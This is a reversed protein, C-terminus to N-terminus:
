KNATKGYETPLCGVYKKFSTAFYSPSSFGVMSSIQTISYKQELILRCAKNFRIKRIFQAVSEGTISNIKLYLNSRSMCMAEAFDNSSFSENDINKEVVEIARKLFEGDISNSTIKDPEIEVHASYHRRLRDRTKLINKVKAQLLGVSFPQALYADAGAKINKKEEEASDKTGLIIVPIHCTQINRKINECLKLGDTGALNRDAIILEPEEEKLIELAEDGDEAFRLRFSQIFNESIYKRFEPDAVAILILGKAKSEANLEDMDDMDVSSADALFYPLNDLDANKSSAKGTAFDEKSYASALAPIEVSIDTFRSKESEIYVKGHHLEALKKVIALGIGTGNRKEESQYFLEFVHPLMDESIGTGTDHVTIKIFEGNRRLSLKVLGADPTFKFANSILNMLIVDIVNKDIPYLAGGLGSDFIYDMERRMAEDEFLAFCESAIVDLDENRVQLKSLGQEAKRYGLMQNVTHMLRMGSRKIFGLRKRIFEDFNGHEEIENLPSLILTLPTRLSHSLNIFFNVREQGLAEIREKEKREMDLQMSISMKNTIFRIILIIAIVAFLFFAIKAFITQWWMPKITVPISIYGDCFKGENNSSKLKFVYQGPSLNSYSVHRNTTEFWQKDFGELMYYFTNKGGSLPNSVSFEISFIKDKSSVTMSKLGGANDRETKFARSPKIQNYFVSIDSIFPLPSYPNDSVESPKFITIGKLGGFYFYGDLGKDCSKVTFENNTYGNSYVKFNEKEQNFCCIGSGTSMWLLHNNDEIIGLVDDNPLGDDTCYRRFSRGAPIYKFLGKNTGVWIDRASSEMIYNIYTDTAPNGRGNDFSYVSTRYADTMFLGSNTGIWVAGSSDKLLHSILLSELRPELRTLDHMSFKKSKKDFSYLGFNSGAWLKGDGEDLISYCGNNIPYQENINYIEVRKSPIDLHFIGGLHTGVYLGNEGDESVCKINDSTLKGDSSKLYASGFQTIEATKPNYRLLGDDNTGAWVAGNRIDTKICSVFGYIEDLGSHQLPIMSFRDSYSNYYNVGGFYTGIWVGNQSDIFISWISNHSLSYQKEDHRYESFTGTINEYVSLGDYTGVWLRGYSDPKLVRIYDSMIHRKGNKSFHEVIKLRKDTKFLGHGHTGIWFGSEDSVPVISSIGYNKFEEVISTSINDYLFLGNDTGILLGNDIKCLSRLHQGSFKKDSKFSLTKKDFIILGNDSTLMLNDGDETISYINNRQGQIYYNFFRNLGFDFLSLGSSTGIWLKGDEDALLSNISSDAIKTSDSTGAFFTKFEYGDYRNLGNQTGFWLNGQCDQAIARVTSQSLGDEVSFHRFRYSNDIGSAYIALIPFLIASLIVKRIM